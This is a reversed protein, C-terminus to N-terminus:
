ETGHEIVEKEEQLIIYHNFLEELKHKSVEITDNLANMKRRDLYNDEKFLEQELHKIEDELKHIENELRKIEKQYNVKKTKVQVHKEVVQKQETYSEKFEEYSGDFETMTNENSLYVLKTGIKNIFYRDHSVFVVPGSFENFVDEIIDKTEIDLHNTPEDLILLDPNSLMLLLLVLRVKEGGSLIHIPKDLDENFFLFRAAVSRIDKNTFMPYYDHIEEFITKGLNLTEQNQDFYGVRYERLFEVKGHIPKLKKEIVKLLTTKGTGNPGIIALKDYGRMTFNINSILPVDYGITLDKAELIIDRTARKGEFSMKVRRKSMTPKELKVMRDIKKVRDQAISARKSNYRFRDVFSQLHAIEKQQRNYKKLMVEYRKIKEDEYQEFTGHYIHSTEQDIEIIKRCVKSIFYKDHTVVLVAGDYKNLYDELWEIIEIDLHNTPEDLLLLDPNQLLLKAFAVRTKEGGSFTDIVRNYEEKKFGFKSLILDIQYHYEYGGEVHFRHEIKEYRDLLEQNHPDESLGKTIEKIVEETKILDGFVELMEDILTNSKNKIVEQSLYGIRAKSNRHIEGGDINMNGLIMKLLTSKGTGNKGILAVKDKSNIEFSINKFLTEGSFEKNLKSISLINMM